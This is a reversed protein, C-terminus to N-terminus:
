IWGQQWAHEAAADDAWIVPRTGATCQSLPAIAFGENAYNATGAPREYVAVTAFTGPAAPDGGLEFIQSRGDCADDCIVWLQGLAPDYEFEMVGPFVSEFETIAIIQWSDTLTYPCRAEGWLYSDVETAGDLLTAADAPGLGFKDDRTDDDTTIALFQGPQLTTGPNITMSNKDDALIWGSLDIATSGTNLLEIADAIQSNNQIVENIVVSPVEPAGWASAPVLTGAAVVAAGLGALTQKSWSLTTRM